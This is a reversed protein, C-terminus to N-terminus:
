VFEADEKERLFIMGLIVCSVPLLILALPSLFITAELIGAAMTIYAFARILDNLSDKIKFLKVAILIDVIGATIMFVAMFLVYIITLFLESVPWIAILLARLGLSSIEFLIGWWIAIVILLDLDHFNYRENLLRRFMLLTYVSIATFIIFLLDGPGFTPGRYRFVALGIIGQVISLGFALPFLVAQAIALWGALAYRHDTM